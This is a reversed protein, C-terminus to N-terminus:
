AKKAQAATIRLFAAAGANRTNKDAAGAGSSTRTRTAQVKCLPEWKEFGPLIERQKRTINTKPDKTATFKLVPIIAADKISGSLARIAISPIAATATTSAIAGTSTKKATNAYTCVVPIQGGTAKANFEVKSILLGTEFKTLDFETGAKVTRTKTTDGTFSMLNKKLDDGPAVDPVELDVDAVFRYGVIIPDVKKTKEGTKPDTSYTVDDQSPDGLAAVFKLKDSLTGLNESVPEVTKEAEVVASNKEKVEAAATEETAKKKNKIELPM